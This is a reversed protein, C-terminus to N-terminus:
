RGNASIKLLVTPKLLAHAKDRARRDSSVQDNKRVVHKHRTLGRCYTEMRVGRCLHREVFPHEMHAKVDLGLKV